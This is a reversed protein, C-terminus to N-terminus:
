LTIHCNPVDVNLVTLRQCFNPSTSFLHMECLGIRRAIQTGFIILTPPFKVVNQHFCNQVTKPSVTYFTVINAIDTEVHAAVILM